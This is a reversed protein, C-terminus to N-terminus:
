AHSPQLLSSPPFSLAKPRNKAREFPPSAALETPARVVSLGRLRILYPAGYIGALPKILAYCCWLLLSLPCCFSLKSSCGQPSM